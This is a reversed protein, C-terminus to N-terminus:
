PRQGASRRLRPNPQRPRNSRMGPLGWQELTMRPRAWHLWGIAVAMAGFTLPGGPWSHGPFVYMVCGSLALLLAPQWARGARYLSLAASVTGVSLSLRGILALLPHNTGGFIPHTWVVDIPAQWAGPRGSAHAAEVLSGVVLGAATDFVVFCLAFVFLASRCLKAPVSTQADVLTAVSFAALAFLPVQIYHVILWTHVDMELLHHGPHPHFVELIALAAPAAAALVAHRARLRRAQNLDEFTDPQFINM